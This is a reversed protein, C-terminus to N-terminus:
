GIRIISLGEDDVGTIRVEYGYWDSLWQEICHQGAHYMFIGEVSDYGVAARAKRLVNLTETRARREERSIKM